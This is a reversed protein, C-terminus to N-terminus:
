THFEKVVQEGGIRTQQSHRNLLLSSGFASLNEYAARQYIRCTKRTRQTVLCCFELGEGQGIEDRKDVRKTIKSTMPDSAVDSKPSGAVRHNPAPSMQCHGHRLSAAPPLSPLALFSFSLASETASQAIAASANEYCGEMVNGREVQIIAHQTTCNSMINGCRGDRKDTDARRRGSETNEGRKIGSSSSM